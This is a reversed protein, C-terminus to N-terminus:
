AIGNIRGAPLDGIWPHEPLTFGDAQFRGQLNRDVMDALWQIERQRADAQRGDNLSM